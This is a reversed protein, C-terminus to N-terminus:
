KGPAPAAAPSAKTIAPGTPFLSQFPMPGAGSGGMVLVGPVQAGGQAWAEIQRLDKLEPNRKLAQGELDITNAKAKALLTMGEAEGRAAEIKANAAGQATIRATEANIQEKQQVLRAQEVLTKEIAAKEVADMYKATLNVDTIGVDVVDIGYKNKAMSTLRERTQTAMLERKGGIDLSNFKGAVVKFASVGDTQMLERYGQRTEQRFRKLGDEDRPIRFQIRLKANDIKQSDVTLTDLQKGDADVTVIGAPYKEVSEFFPIKFGLGPEAVRVFKGNRTIVGMESQDVQFPSGFATVVAVSAAGIALLGTKSTLKGFISSVKAAAADTRSEFEDGYRM